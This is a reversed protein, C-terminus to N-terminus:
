KEIKSAALRKPIEGLGKMYEDMNPIVATLEKKEMKLTALDTATDDEAKSKETTAFPKGEEFYIKSENFQMDDYSGKTHILFIKGDQYYYNAEFLYMSEGMLETLRVMKDSESYVTYISQDHAMNMANNSFRKKEIKQTAKAADIKQMLADAAAIKDAETPEKVPEEKVVATTDGSPKDNNSSAQDGCASFLLAALGLSCLTKIRM